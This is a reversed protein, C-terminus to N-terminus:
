CFTTSTVSHLNQLGTGSIGQFTRRQGRLISTQSWLIFFSHREQQLICLWTSFFLPRGFFVLVLQWWDSAVQVMWGPQALLPCCGGVSAWVLWFFWVASGLGFQLLTLLYMAMIKLCLPHKTPLLRHSVCYSMKSPIPSLDREYLFVCSAKHEPVSIIEM